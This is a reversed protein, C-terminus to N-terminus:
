YGENQEIVAETNREIESYPIPWLNHKEQMNKVLPNKAVIVTRRYVEGLRGLTLRRKEEVGLERMREDLIYDLDVDKSSIVKAKARKRVVNIDDAAKSKDGLGLAAEARLLYTESLRFMYQDSYTTGAGGSLVGLVKDMYLDEPHQGPTTAKSQYAYLMRNPIPETYEPFPNETDLTDGYFKSGPNDCVFKRVFNYNSNRMDNWDSNEWIVNSFYRTSIAWGIGRGGTLTSTPWLFPKEGDIVLDRILPPHNRELKYGGSGTSTMGGGITNVEFQIVWIAETNGACRNQNGVRFLDYYVDGPESKMSGFREYMLKMNSDEIVKTATEYAKDFEKNAIYVEALLHNAAINSIEGDKVDTIKPLFQASYLLDDIVQKLVDEKSARTYDVKPTSLEELEIPVGGYLYVLTRYAFARFFKAQAEIVSKESDDLESISVRNLITNCESVMKYLNKWHSTLYGNNPNCVNDFDNFRQAGQIQGDYVLDTGFIYDLPSNEGNTYFETRVLNYLNVVSRDFDAKTIFSNENSKFDLAEEDLYSNCSIMFSSLIICIYMYIKM